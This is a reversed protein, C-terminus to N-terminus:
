TVMSDAFASRLTSRGLEVSTPKTTVGIDMITMHYKPRALRRAAAARCLRAIPASAKWVVTQKQNDNMVKIPIASLAAKPHHHASGSAARPM